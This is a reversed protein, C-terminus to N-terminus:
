PFHIAAQWNEPLQKLFDSMHETVSVAAKENADLHVDILGILAQHYTWVMGTWIANGWPSPQFAVEARVIWEVKQAVKIALEERDGEVLAV